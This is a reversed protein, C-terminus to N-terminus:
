FRRHLQRYVAPSRRLFKLGRQRLSQIYCSDCCRASSSVDEEEEEESRVVMVKKERIYHRHHIVYLWALHSIGCILGSSM